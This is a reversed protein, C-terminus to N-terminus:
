PCSQELASRVADLEIDISELEHQLGSIKTTIAEVGADDGLYELQPVTRQLGAITEVLGGREALARDYGTAVQSLEDARNENGAMRRHRGATALDIRCEALRALLTHIRVTLSGEPEHRLAEELKSSARINAGASALSRGWYYMATPDQRALDGAQEFWATATEYREAFMSAEGALVRDSPTQTTEALESGIDAAKSLIEKREAEPLGSVESGLAFGIATRCSDPDGASLKCANAYADFADSVRGLRKFIVGAASHLSADDPNESLCKELVAAADEERGLNIAAGALVLARSIRLRSDVADADMEWMLDFAGKSKGDSKLARALAITYEANEPELNVAKSLNAVAEATKGLKTQSRGLMFYSGAHGHNSSVAEAFHAEAAVYDQRNFATVGDNFDAQAVVAALLTSLFIVSWANPARM